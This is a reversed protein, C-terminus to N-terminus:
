LRSDLCMIVVDPRPGVQNGDAYSHDGVHIYLDTPNRENYRLM